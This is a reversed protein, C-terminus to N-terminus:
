TSLSALAVSSNRTRLEVNRLDHLSELIEQLLHIGKDGKKLSNICLKVFERDGELADLREYLNDVDEMIALKQPDEVINPPTEPAADVAGDAHEDGAADFLPLLRKGKIGLSRPEGNLKRDEPNDSFGNEYDHLVGDTDHGISKSDQPDEEDEMTILKAELVKLQELISLREEEFDALSEKLANLHKETGQDTGPSPVDGAPFRQHNGEPNDACENKEHSEISFDVIIDEASSSASPTQCRGNVKNSEMQRRKKAEIRLLKKRYMELDKELEQNEKEKKIMLENLLQLAEQDYESQEEMMRQYQLAEMQMAAKEEQLRTIMAMTQNAAIAAASREEELEAYLASLAKREAQLAAKLEDMNLTDCGEFESAVSGDLSETVSERRGILFRKSMGQIGDTYNPTEPARDEEIEHNESFESIHNESFATEQDVTAKENNEVSGQDQTSESVLTPKHTDSGEIHEKDCIESGISIDSNSDKSEPLDKESPGELTIGTTARPAIVQQDSIPESYHAVVSNELHIDDTETRMGQTMSCEHDEIGEDMKGSSIITKEEESISQIDLTMTSQQARQVASSYLEKEINSKADNPGATQKVENLEPVLVIPIETMSDILEIPVLRDEETACIYSPTSTLVEISADQVLHCADSILSSEEEEELIAATAHQGENEDEENKQEEEEGPFIEARHSDVVEEEELKEKGMTASKELVEQDDVEVQDVLNETQVYEALGWSQKALFYSSYFGSELVVGCCSCRLDKEGEESRKMWSLLAPAGAPRSTTPCCDECMEGVEALRRHRDCYGLGSVEAAHDACVLDRCASGLRRRRGGGDSEFIHDVRSCFVCPPQLGFYAAFRAILYAFLGNLLLLAILTWELVAYVLIVALKHTNRHLYTAFKNAAM